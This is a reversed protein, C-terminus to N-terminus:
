AEGQYRFLVDNPICACLALHVRSSVSYQRGGEGRQETKVLLVLLVQRELSAFFAIHRVREPAFLNVLGICEVSVCAMGHM